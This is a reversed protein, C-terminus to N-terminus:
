ADLPSIPQEEDNNSSELELQIERRSNDSRLHLSLTMADLNKRIGNAAMHFGPSDGRAYYKVAANVQDLLMCVVSTLWNGDYDLSVRQDPM